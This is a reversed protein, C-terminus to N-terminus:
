RQLLIVLNQLLYTTVYQLYQEREDQAPGYKVPHVAAEVKGLQAVHHQM